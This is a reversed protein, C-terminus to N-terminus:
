SAAFANRPSGSGSHVPLARSNRRASPSAWYASPTLAIRVSREAAILWKSALRRKSGSCALALSRSRSARAACSFSRM